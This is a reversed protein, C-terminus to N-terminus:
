GQRRDLPAGSLGTRWRVPGTSPRTSSRRGFKAYGVTAGRPQYACQVSDLACRVTWHVLRGNPCDVHRAFIARGVMPTPSRQSVPCDPSNYGRQGKAKGSPSSNAASLEGSLGTCWRVTRHIIATHRRRIELATNEDSVLRACRVSDPAGSSLGTHWVSSFKAVGLWTKETEKRATELV